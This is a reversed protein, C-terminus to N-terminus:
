RARATSSICPPTVWFVTLTLCNASPSSSPTPSKFDCTYHNFTTDSDSMYKMREEMEYHGEQISQCKQYSKRLVEEATPRNNCGALVVAIAALALTSKVLHKM